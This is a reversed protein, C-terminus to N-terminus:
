PRYTQHILTYSWHKPNCSMYATHWAVINGFESNWSVAALVVLVHEGSGMKSINRSDYCWMELSLRGGGCQTVSSSTSAASSHAPQSILIQGSTSAKQPKSARALVSIIDLAIPREFVELLTM